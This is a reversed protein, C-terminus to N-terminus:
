SFRFLFMGIFAMSIVVSLAQALKIRYTRMAILGAITFLAAFVELSAGELIAFLGFGMAALVAGEYITGFGFTLHVFLWIAAAVIIFQYALLLIEEMKGGLGGEM